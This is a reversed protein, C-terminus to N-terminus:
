KAHEGLTSKLLEGFCEHFLQRNKSKLHCSTFVRWVGDTVTSLLDHSTYSAMSQSVLIVYVKILTEVISQFSQTNQSSTIKVSSLSALYTTIATLAEKGNQANPINELLKVTILCINFDLNSKFSSFNPQSLLPFRSLFHAQFDAWFKTLFARLESSSNSSKITSGALLAIRLTSLLLQLIVELLSIEKASEKFSSSFFNASCDIWSESLISLILQLKSYPVLVNDFNESPKQSPLEFLLYVGSHRFIPVHPIPSSFDVLNFNTGTTQNPVFVIKNVTDITPGIRLSENRSNTVDLNQSSLVAELLKSVQVLIQLKASHDALKSEPNSVLASGKQKAAIKGKMVSLFSSKPAESSSTKKRSILKVLLPLVTHVHPVLISPKSLVQDLIKLADIQIRENIHTLGCNLHAVILSSFPLIKELPSKNVLFGVLSSLAHRVQSSEDNVAVLVQEVLKALNLPLLELNSQLLDKLGHLANVRTTQNPHKLQTLLAQLYVCVSNIIIIIMCLCKYYM